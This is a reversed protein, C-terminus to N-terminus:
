VIPTWEKLLVIECGGAATYPDRGIIERLEAEDAVEYVHPAGTDDAWPGRDHAVHGRPHGAPQYAPARVAPHGQM